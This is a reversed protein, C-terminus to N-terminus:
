TEETLAAYARLADTRRPDADVRLAAFPLALGTLRPVSRLTLRDGPAILQDLVAEVLLHNVQVLLQSITVQATAIYLDRHLPPRSAGGHAPGPVEITLPSWASLERSADLTKLLRRLATTTEQPAPGAWAASGDDAVHDFAFREALNDPRGALFVTRTFDRRWSAARERPVSLAFRCTEAVWRPLHFRDVVAVVLHPGGPDSEAEAALAARAGLLGQPTTLDCRAALEPRAARLRGAAVSLLLEPGLRTPEELPVGPARPSDLVHPNM